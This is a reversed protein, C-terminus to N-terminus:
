NKLDINWTKDNNRLVLRKFGMERIDTIIQQHNVMQKVYPLNLEPWYVKLTKGDEGAIDMSAAWGRKRFSKELSVAFIM